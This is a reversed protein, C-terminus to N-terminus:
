DEKKVTAKKKIAKKKEEVEQAYGSLIAREADETRLIATEGPANAFGAGKKIFKVKKTQM